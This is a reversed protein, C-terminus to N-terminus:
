HTPKEPISDPEKGATFRLEGVDKVNWCLTAGQVVSLRFPGGKEAPLPKGDLAYALWGSGLLEDVPISASYSSDRSVVSCHTASPDIPFRKVVSAVPVAADLAGDSLRGAGEAADAIDGLESWEITGSALGTIRLEIM